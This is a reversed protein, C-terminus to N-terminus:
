SFLPLPYRLPMLPKLVVKRQISSWLCFLFYSTPLLDPYFHPAGSRLHFNPQKPTEAKRTRKAKEMAWTEALGGVIGSPRI